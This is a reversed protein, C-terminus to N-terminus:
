TKEVCYSIDSLFVPDYGAERDRTPLIEVKRM